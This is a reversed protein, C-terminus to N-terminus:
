RTIENIRNYLIAIRELPSKGPQGVGLLYRLRQWGQEDDDAKGKSRKKANIVPAEEGFLIPHLNHQALNAASSRVLSQPEVDISRANVMLTFVKRGGDTAQQLLRVQEPRIERTTLMFVLADAQECGQLLAETDGERTSDMGPTDLLVTCSDPLEYATVSSTEPLGYGTKAVERGMLANVLTSKGDQFDGIIAVKFKMSM